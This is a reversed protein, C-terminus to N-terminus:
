WLNRSTGSPRRAGTGDWLQLLPDWLSWPVVGGEEDEAEEDGQQEGM